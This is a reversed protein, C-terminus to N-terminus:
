LRGAGQFDEEDYLVACLNEVTLDGVKGVREKEDGRAKREIRERDWDPYALMLNHRYDAAEYRAAQEALEIEEQGFERLWDRRIHANKLRRNEVSFYLDEVEGALQVWRSKALIYEQQQEPTGKVLLAREKQKKKVFGSLERCEQSMLFCQSLVMEGVIVAFDDSDLGQMWGGHAHNSGSAVAQPLGALEEFLGFLAYPDPQFDRCAQMREPDDADLLIDILREGCGSRWGKIEHAFYHEWRGKLVLALTKHLGCHFFIGACILDQDPPFVHGDNYDWFRRATNAAVSGVPPGDDLRLSNDRDNGFMERTIAKKRGSRRWIKRQRESRHPDKEFGRILLDLDDGLLVYKKM